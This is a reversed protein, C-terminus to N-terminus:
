QGGAPTTQQDRMKAFNAKNEPKLLDLCMVDSKIAGQKIAANVPCREICAPGQPRFSCLDCKTFVNLASDYTIRARQGVREPAVAQSEPPTPFLCAQECKGCAICTDRNIVRAGTSPNVDLAKVPCVAVCPADPCQVCVDQFFQGRNGFQAIVQPDVTVSSRRYVRIRALGSLGAAKHVESCAVECTLCGICLSPDPIIVGGSDAISAAGAGKFSELFGFGVFAVGAVAAGTRRLFVRRSLDVSAGPESESNDAMM